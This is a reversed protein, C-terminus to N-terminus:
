YTRCTIHNILGREDQGIGRLWSESQESWQPSATSLLRPAVFNWWLFQNEGLMTGMFGMQLWMWAGTLRHNVSNQIRLEEWGDIFKHSFKMFPFYRSMIKLTFVLLLWQGKNNLNRSYRCYIKINLEGFSNTMRCWGQVNCQNNLWSTRPTGLGLMDLCHGQWAVCKMWMTPRTRRASRTKPNPFIQTDTLM